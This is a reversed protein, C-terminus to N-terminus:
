KTLRINTLDIPITIDAHPSVVVYSRINLRDNGRVAVFPTAGALAPNSTSLNVEYAVKRTGSLQRIKELSLQLNFQSRTSGGSVYTNEHGPLAAVPSPEIDFNGEFISSLTPIGNQDLFTIDLNLGLPLGNDVVLALYCSSDNLRLTYYDGNLADQELGRLQEELDSLDLDMTDRYQIGSSHFNLPLELRADLDTVISDVGIYNMQERFTSGEALQDAPLAICLGVAYEIGCPKHEVVRRINYNELISLRKMELLQAINVPETAILLPLTESYGDLCNIKLMVSDFSLNCGEALVEQFSSNVFGQVDAELSVWLEKVRFSSTDYHQLKEFLDIKETGSIVHHLRLTDDAKASKRALAEKEAVWSLTAYQHYDYRLSVIDDEGVYVTIAQNTDVMGVITAMDASMRTLPLGYVPDFAGQIELPHRLESFYDKSCGALLLPLLLACAIISHKM